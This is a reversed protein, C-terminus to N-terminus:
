FLRYVRHLAYRKSVNQAYRIIAYAHGTSPLDGNSRTAWFLALLITTTGFKKQIEAM